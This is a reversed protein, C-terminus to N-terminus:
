LIKKFIFMTIVFFFVFLEENSHSYLTLKKMKTFQMKFLNMGNFLNMENIFGSFPNM